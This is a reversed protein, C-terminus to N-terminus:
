FILFILLYIYLDENMTIWIYNIPNNETEERLTEFIILKRFLKPFHDTVEGLGNGVTQQGNIKSLLGLIM